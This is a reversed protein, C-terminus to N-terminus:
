KISIHINSIDTQIERTIINQIQAIQETTLNNSEIIVNVSEDNVFIICNEFGKNKILNEAIMIANQTNNIKTIEQMSISKQTENINANEIIKRYSEIMQSYMTDRSLKSEIFYDKGSSTINGSITETISTKNNEEELEKEQNTQEENQFEEISEIDNEVLSVKDEAEENKTNDEENYIEANVLTADSNRQSIETTDYQIINSSTDINEGYDITITLIARQM